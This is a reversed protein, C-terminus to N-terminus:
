FMRLALIMTLFDKAEVSEDMLSRMLASGSLSRRSSRVWNRAGQHATLLEVEEVEEFGWVRGWEAIYLDRYRTCPVFSDEEM